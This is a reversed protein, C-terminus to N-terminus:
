GAVPKGQGAELAPHQQLQAVAWARCWHAYRKSIVPVGMWFMRSPLLFGRPQRDKLWKRSVILKRLGARRAVRKHCFYSWKEVIWM